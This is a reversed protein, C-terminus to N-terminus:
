KSADHTNENTKLNLDEFSSLVEEESVRSNIMMTTSPPVNQYNLFPNNKTNLNEPNTIKRFDKLNQIKHKLRICNDISHGVVQHFKCYSNPNYGLTNPNPPNPNPLPQLLGKQM